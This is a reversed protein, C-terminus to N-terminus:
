RRKRPKRPPVAIQPYPRGLCDGQPQPAAPAMKNRVEAKADAGWKMLWAEAYRRALGQTALLRSQQYGDIYCRTTVRFGPGDVLYKALKVGRYVICTEEGVLAKRRVPLM